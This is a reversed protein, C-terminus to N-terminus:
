SAPRRRGAPGVSVVKWSKGDWSETLVTPASSPGTTGVAMCADVASCSVGYLAGSTVARPMVSPPAAASVGPIAAVVVGAAVPLIM